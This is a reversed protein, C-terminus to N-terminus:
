DFYMLCNPLGVLGGPEETWTIKWTLINSHTAMEEGSSRGLGPTLGSDGTDRANCASDEGVLGIPSGQM